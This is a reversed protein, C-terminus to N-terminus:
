RPPVSRTRAKRRRGRRRKPMEFHQDFVFLEDQEVQFAQKPNEPLLEEHSSTDLTVEFRSGPRSRFHFHAFGLEDTRGVVQGDIRVPLGTVDGTARVLIVAEHKIPDCAVVHHIPSRPESGFGRANLKPLQLGRTPGRTAHGEPCAVGVALRQGSQGPVRARLSGAANTTGLYRGDASVRAGPVPKTRNALVEVHVEFGAPENQACSWQAMLGMILLRQAVGSRGKM